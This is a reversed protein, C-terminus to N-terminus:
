KCVNIVEKTTVVIEKPAKEGSQVSGVNASCNGSKKSGINTVNSGQQVDYGSKNTDSHTWKKAIAGNVKSDGHAGLNQVSFATNAILLSSYIIMKSAKNMNIIKNANM